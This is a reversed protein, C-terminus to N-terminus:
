RDMPQDCQFTSAEQSDPGESRIKLIIIFFLLEKLMVAIIFKAYGVKFQSDNYKTCIGTAAKKYTRCQCM